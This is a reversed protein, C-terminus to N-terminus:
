DKTFFISQNHFNFFNCVEELLNTKVRWLCRDVKGSTKELFLSWTAMFITYSIYLLLVELFTTYSIYPYSTRGHIYGLFYLPFVALFLAFLLFPFYQKSDLMCFIPATLFLIFWVTLIVGLHQNFPRACLFLLHFFNMYKQPITM